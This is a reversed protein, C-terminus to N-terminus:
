LNLDFLRPDIAPFYIMPYSPPGVLQHTSLAEESGASACVGRAEESPKGSHGAKARPNGIGGSGGSQNGIFDWQLLCLRYIMYFRFFDISYKDDRPVHTFFFSFIFFSFSFNRFIGGENPFPCFLFISHM